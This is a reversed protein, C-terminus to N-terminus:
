RPYSPATPYALSALSAMHQPLWEGASCYHHYDKKKVSNVSHFEAPLAFM